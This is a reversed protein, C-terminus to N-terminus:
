ARAVKPARRETAHFKEIVLSLNGPSADQAQLARAEEAAAGANSTGDITYRKIAHEHKQADSECEAIMAAFVESITAKQNEAWREIRRLEEDRKVHLERARASAVDRMMVREIMLQENEDALRGRLEEYQKLIDRM